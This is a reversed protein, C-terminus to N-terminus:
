NVGSLNHVQSEKKYFDDVISVNQATKLMKQKSM